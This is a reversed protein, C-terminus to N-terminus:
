SWLLGRNFNGEFIYHHPGDTNLYCLDPNGSPVTYRYHDGKIDFDRTFVFSKKLGLDKFEQAEKQYRPYDLCFMYVLNDYDIREKRRNWKERATNFDTEHQFLVAIDDLRGIPFYPETEILRKIQAYHAKTLDKCETLEQDMYYKLNNCFKPYEEPLIQLAITPSAYQQHLDCYMKWGSCNNAIISLGM